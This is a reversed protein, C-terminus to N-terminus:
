KKTTIVWFHMEPYIFSTVVDCYKRLDVKHKLLSLLKHERGSDM